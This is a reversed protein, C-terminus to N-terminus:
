LTYYYLIYTYFLRRYFLHGFLSFESQTVFPRIQTYRHRYRLIYLRYYGESLLSINQFLYLLIFHSLIQIYFNKGSCHESLGTQPILVVFFSSRHFYYRLISHRYFPITQDIIWDLGIWTLGDIEFFLRITARGQGIMLCAFSGLLICTQMPLIATLSM